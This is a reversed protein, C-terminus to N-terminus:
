LSWHVGYNIYLSNYARQRFGNKKMKGFVNVYIESSNFWNAYWERLYYAAPPFNRIKLITKPLHKVLKMRM